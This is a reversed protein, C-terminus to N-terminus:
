FCCPSIQAAAKYNLTAAQKMNKSLCVVANVHNPSATCKLTIMGLGAALFFDESAKPAFVHATALRALQPDKSEKKKKKTWHIM